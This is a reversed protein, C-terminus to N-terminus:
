NKSFKLSVTEKLWNPFTLFLTYTFFIFLLWNIVEDLYYVRSDFRSLWSTMIIGILALISFMSLSNQSKIWLLIQPITFILFILRYDWNNGIFFTGIYISCGIRFSSIKQIDFDDFKNLMKNSNPAFLLVLVISTLLLIIIPPTIWRFYSTFDLDALVDFIVKSGYSLHKSRPTARSILKLNDFNYIIYTGFFTIAFILFFVFKQRKMKLFVSIAFVPYLKIISAFIVMIMSLCDLYFKDREIILLAIALIIFVILDNNGREIALMISPSCLISAYLLSETYNIKKIILFFLIFFILACLVSLAITHGQNIGLSAFISWIRPYNMPRQWPDCPNEILVDHGLRICEAGATIVRMDAFPPLLKPVLPYYILSHTYSEPYTSSFLTILIPALYIFLIVLLLFRGDLKSTKSLQSSVFFQIKKLSTIM